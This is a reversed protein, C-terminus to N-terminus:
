LYAGETTVGEGKARPGAGELVLDRAAPLRASRPRARRPRASRPRSRGQPQPASHGARPKCIRPVADRVLTRERCRRLRSVHLRTGDAPLRELLGGGVPGRRLLLGLALASM